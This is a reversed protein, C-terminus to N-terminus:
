CYLSCPILLCDPNLRCKIDNILECLWMCFPDPPPGPFTPGTTIDIISGGRAFRNGAAAARKHLSEIRPALDDQLLRQLQEEGRGSFQRAERLLAELMPLGHNV